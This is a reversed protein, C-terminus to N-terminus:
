NSFNARWDRMKHDMKSEEEIIMGRPSNKTEHISSMLFGISGKKFHGTGELRTDSTKRFKKIGEWIKKQYSRIKLEEAERIIM